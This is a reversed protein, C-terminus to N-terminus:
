SAALDPAPTAVYVARDRVVIGQSAVAFEASTFWALTRTVDTTELEVLAGGSGDLDRYIRESTVAFGRRIERCSEHASKWADFDVPTVRILVSTMALRRLPRHTMAYSTPPEGLEASAAYVVWDKTEPCDATNCAATDVAIAREYPNRAAV